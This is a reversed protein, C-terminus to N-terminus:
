VVDVPAAGEEGRVEVGQDVHRGAKVAQCAVAGVHGLVGLVAAPYVHVPQAPTDIPLRVCELNGSKSTHPKRKEKEREKKKRKTEKEEKKRKRSWSHQPPGGLCCVSTSVTSSQTPNGSSAM